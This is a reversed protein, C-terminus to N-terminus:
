KKKRSPSEAAEGRSREKVKAKKLNKEYVVIDLDKRWEEFKKNLLEESKLAKLAKNVSSYAEDLPMTRGKQREVLKLIVWGRSTQFPESVDGVKKLKFGVEDLEPQEGETFMDTRGSNNKTSEDISYALVVDSFREGAKIKEYAEIASARDGTLVVGFRRKEPVKYLNKNNNYYDEIERQTVVIQNKILDEYMKSVMLEEKKAKILRAVEPRKEINSAEMEDAVLENMIIDVLFKKIGGFRFERRPRSFFSAKDYLDSFDRITITKNKYKVLPKELDEKKFKLIPGKNESPPPPNTLPRDPPLAEFVIRVNDDFWQVGAKKRIEESKLHMAEMEKYSRILKELDERMDEFSKKKTAERKLVKVIFYGYPSPMPRSIGGVPLSFIENQFEPMFTGFTAKLIKGGVDADPAKSYRKCITEFDNGDKLLQYVEEAEDETDVLIQKVNLIVGMRDYYTKLDDETVKVKDAVEFKLYAAQLGMKKYVELGQVVTPDKDYGLEDAKIAMIEKKIMTELFERFGDFGSAKPLYKPDVNEYAEEFMGLTIVRDGVKAVPLDKNNKSCTAILVILVLAAMIWKLKM